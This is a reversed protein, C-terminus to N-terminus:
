SLIIRVDKRKIYILRIFCMYAEKMQYNNEKREIIM